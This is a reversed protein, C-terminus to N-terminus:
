SSFPACRVVVLARGIKITVRKFPLASFLESDKPRHRPSFLVGVLMEGATMSYELGFGIDDAQRRSSGRGRLSSSDSRPEESDSVTDESNHRIVDAGHSIYEQDELPEHQM